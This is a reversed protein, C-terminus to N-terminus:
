LRWMSRKRDDRLVGLLEVDDAVVADDAAAVVGIGPGHVLLAARRGVLVVEADIKALLLVGLGGRPVRRRHVVDDLLVALVNVDDDLRVLVAHHVRAEARDAAGAHGLHAVRTLAVRLQLAQGIRHDPAVALHLRRGPVVREIEDRADRDATM